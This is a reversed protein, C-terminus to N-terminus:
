NSEVQAEKIRQTLKNSTKRWGKLLEVETSIRDIYPKFKSLDVPLVDACYTLECLLQECNIIAEDQYRRRDTLEEPTIPYITKAATINLMLKRLLEVISERFFTILWDPYEEIIKEQTDKSKRVKDRVGFDRLLFNTIDERLRRANHYFELKSTHRNNKLVSM